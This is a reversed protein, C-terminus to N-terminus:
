ERLRLRALMGEIRKIERNLLRAAGVKGEALLKDRDRRLNLLSQQLGLGSSTFEDM